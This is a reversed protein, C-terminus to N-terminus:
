KANDKTYDYGIATLQALTPNYWDDDPTYWEDAIDQSGFLSRLENTTLFTAHLLNDTKTGTKPDFEYLVARGVIEPNDPATMGYHRPDYVNLSYQM